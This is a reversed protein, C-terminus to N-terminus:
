MINQFTVLLPCVCMYSVQDDEAKVTPSTIDWPIEEKINVATLEEYKVVTIEEEKIDMVTDEEVKVVSIKEVKIDMDTVEVKISVSECVYGFM